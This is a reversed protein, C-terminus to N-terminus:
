FRFAFFVVDIREGREGGGEEEGVLEVGGNM